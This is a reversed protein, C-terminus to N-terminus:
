SECRKRECKRGETGYWISPLHETGDIEWAVIKDVNCSKAAEKILLILSGLEGRGKPDKGRVIVAGDKENCEGKNRAVLDSCTREPHKLIWAAEHALLQKLTLEKLITMRKGAIKNGSEDYDQVDVMCWRGQPYWDLVMIPEEVCHVGNQACNAEEEVYTKGIEYQFTGHGLTCALDKNFGKFAIM